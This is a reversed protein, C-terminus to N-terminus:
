CCIGANSVIQFRVMIAEKYCAQSIYLELLINIAEATVHRPHLDFGKELTKLAKMHENTSHYHQLYIFM